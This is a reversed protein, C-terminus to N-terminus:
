PLGYGYEIERFTVENDFKDLQPEFIELDGYQSLCIRKIWNKYQDYNYSCRTLQDALSFKATDLPNGDLRYETIDDFENYNYKQIMTVINDSDLIEKKVLLGKDNTYFQAYTLGVPKSGEETVIQYESIFSNDFGYTTVYDYLLQGKDNFTRNSKVSAGTESYFSRTQSSLIGSDSFSKNEILRDMDDYRSSRLIMQSGDSKTRLIKLINSKHYTYEDYYVWDSTDNYVYYRDKYGQENYSSVHKSRQNGEFDFSSDEIHNGKDGYNYVSSPKGNAFFTESVLLVEESNFTERSFLLGDEDISTVVLNGAEDYSEETTYEPISFPDPISDLVAKEDQTLVSKEDILNGAADFVYRGLYWSQNARDFYRSTYNFPHAETSNPASSWAIVRQGLEEKGDVGQLDASYEVFSKIPSDKLGKESILWEKDSSYVPLYCSSLFLFTPL